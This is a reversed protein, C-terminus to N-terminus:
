FYCSLFSGSLLLGIWSVILKGYLSVPVIVPSPNIKPDCEISILTKNLRSPSSDFSTSFTKLLTDQSLFQPNPLLAISKRSFNAVTKTPTVQFQHSPAPNLWRPHLQLMQGHHARAPTAKKEQSSGTYSLQHTM